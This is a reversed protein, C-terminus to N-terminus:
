RAFFCIMQGSGCSSLGGVSDNMIIESEFEAVVM